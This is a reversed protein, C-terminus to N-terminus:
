PPNHAYITSSRVHSICHEACARLALHTQARACAHSMDVLRPPVNQARVRAPIVATPEVHGRADGRRRARACVCVCVCVHM